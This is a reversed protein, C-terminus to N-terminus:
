NILKKLNSIGKKEHWLFSINAKSFIIEDLYPSINNLNLIM